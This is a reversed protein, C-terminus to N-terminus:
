VSNGKLMEQLGHLTPSLLFNDDSYGFIGHYNGNLWCDYGCRRLETFLENVKSRILFDEEILSPYILKNSYWKSLHDQTTVLRFGKPNTKQGM